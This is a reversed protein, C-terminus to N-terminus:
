EESPATHRARREQKRRRRERNYRVNDAIDYNKIVVMRQWIRADMHNHFSSPEKFFLEYVAIAV